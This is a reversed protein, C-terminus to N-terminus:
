RLQAAMDGPLQSRIDDVEGKTISEKIVKWASMIQKKVHDENVHQEEAMSELIEEMDKSSDVEEAAVVTDQLEAPLQSAFDMREDPTLSEALLKTFMVLANESESDSFGSYYQVKKIMERYGMTEEKGIGVAGITARTGDILQLM